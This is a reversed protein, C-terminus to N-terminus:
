HSKLAHYKVIKPIYREKCAPLEMESNRVDQESVAGSAVMKKLAKNEVKLLVLRHNSTQILKRSGELQKQIQMRRQALIKRESDLTQIRSKFLQQQTLLIKQLAKSNGNKKLDDPFVLASKKDREAALRVVNAKTEMVQESIQKLRIHLSEDNLSLLIQGRKVIDGDRVGISKVQGGDLHQVVKNESAVTIRGSAIVASDLTAFSAWGILFLSKFFLTAMGIRVYPKEDLHVIEQVGTNESKPTEM